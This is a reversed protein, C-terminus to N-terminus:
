RSHLARCIFDRPVCLTKVKCCILAARQLNALLSAVEKCTLRSYADLSIQRPTGSAHRADERSDAQPPEDCCFREIIFHDSTYAHVYLEVYKFLNM